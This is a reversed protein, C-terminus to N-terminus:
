AAPPADLISKLAQAAGMLAASEVPVVVKTNESEAFESLTVAIRLGDPSWQPSVGGDVFDGETTFIACGSTDEAYWYCSDYALRSIPSQGSAVQNLAAVIGVLALAVRKIVRAPHPACLGDTFTKM